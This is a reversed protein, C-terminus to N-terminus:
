QNYSRALKRFEQLAKKADVKQDTVDALWQAEIEVSYQQFIEADFASAAQIKMNQTKAARYGFGDNREWLQAAAVSLETGTTSLLAQRTKADLSAVFDPNMFLGFSGLYMGGPIEYVFSTVESLRSSSLEGMPMFVGDVTEQALMEHVKSGPATVPVIGMKGGIFGQVGGGVRIKKGKMDTLSQIPKRLLIQGPGHTFLAALVLGDHEGAQKLYQDYVQWYAHSAAKSNVGLLPLEAMTTLKFREPVYGHFSWGADYTGDEVLAFIDKPHGKHHEVKIKVEGQTTKEIKKGWEPLFVTNMLHASSLWTGIVMQKKAQASISIGLIVGTVLVIKLIVQM